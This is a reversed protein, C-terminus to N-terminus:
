PTRVLYASKPISKPISKQASKPTSQPYESSRVEQLCVIDAAWAELELSVATGLELEGAGCGSTQAMFRLEPAAAAILVVRAHALCRM